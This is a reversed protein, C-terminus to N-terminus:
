SDSRGNFGEQLARMDSLIGRSVTGSHDELRHNHFGRTRIDDITQDFPTNM